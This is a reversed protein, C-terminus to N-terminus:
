RVQLGGAVPILNLDPELPDFQSHYLDFYAGRARLLELHSGQEIIAGQDIVLIIDANRITSLRHAIVFSTKGKMLTNMAKQIYIETRTDVNSTAEDLILIPPHTLFARAITLLQKQGQSLNSAEENIVTDYGDPLTRIFHDAHALEAAHIIEAFTCNKCGYALNDKITGHFLWTDQLVVGFMRRLDARKMDRINVGDIRIEGQNIEYFRMLVNVLTTKGAGTPGVIAVTDGPEVHFNVNRLLATGEEYAFSVNHYDVRGQPNTIAFAEADEIDKLEEMEDLVEFIREASAITSQFSNMINSIQNIPRSFQKSYQIFAQIDGIKISGNIVFIGGVVCVVIYGINNIFDMLPMMFGTIFQSKFGAECLRGNIERFKEESEKEHGYAEVVTLGTYMEEVHGNLEGAARRQAIFYPQSRGALFKISLVSLPITVVTVLTLLPSIMLMMVLVGVILIVASIMQTLNQQLTVGITDVDNTIRNLLEGHSHSDLFKLPLRAMKRNLDERIQFVIKQSINVMFHQQLYSFVASILYISFLIFIINRIAAFDIHAGATNKLKGSIGDALINTANGMIKPSFISFLTSAVTMLCVMIVQLKYKDLYGLIRKVTGKYNKVKEKPHGISGVPNLGRMSKNMLSTKDEKSM